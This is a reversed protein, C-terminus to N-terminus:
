GVYLELGSCLIPQKNDVFFYDIIESSERRPMRSPSSRNHIMLSFNNVIHYEVRGVVFVVGPYQVLHSLKFNSKNLWWCSLLGILRRFYNWLLLDFRNRRISSFIRLELLIRRILQLGLLLCCDLVFWFILLLLLLWLLNCFPLQSLLLLLLLGFLLCFLQMHELFLLLLLQLLLRSFM